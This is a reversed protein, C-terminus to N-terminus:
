FLLLLKLEMHYIMPYNLLFIDELAIISEFMFFNQNEIKQIKLFKVLCYNNSNRTAKNELIIRSTSIYKRKIFNDDNNEEGCINLSMNQTNKVIVERNLHIVYARGVNEEFNKTETLTVNIKNFLFNCLTVNKLIKEKEIFNEINAKEYFLIEKDSYNKEIRNKGKYKFYVSYLESICCNLNESNELFIESFKNISSDNLLKSGSLYKNYEEQSTFSNKLIKELKRDEKAADKILLDILKVCKIYSFCSMRLPTTLYFSFSIKNFAYNGKELKFLLCKILENELLKYTINYSKLSSSLITFVKLNLNTKGKLRLNTMYIKELICISHIVCRVLLNKNNIITFSDILDIYKKYIDILENLENLDLLDVQLYYLSKLILKKIEKKEQEEKLEEIKLELEKRSMGYKNQIESDTLKDLKLIEKSIAEDEQFDERVELQQKIRRGAVFLEDYKKEIDEIKEVQINTMLESECNKFFKEFGEKSICNYNKTTLKLFQYDYTKLYMEELLTKIDIEKFGSNIVGTEKIIIKETFILNQVIFKILTLNEIKDNIRGIASCGTSFFIRKM